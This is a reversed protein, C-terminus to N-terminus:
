SAVSIRCATSASSSMSANVAACDMSALLRSAISSRRRPRRPLSVSSHVVPQQRVRQGVGQSRDDGLEDGFLELSGPRLMGISVVPRRREQGDGLVGLEVLRRRGCDSGPDATAGELRDPWWTAALVQDLVVYVHVWSTVLTRDLM